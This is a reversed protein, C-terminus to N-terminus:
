SSTPPSRPERLPASYLASDLVSHQTSPQISPQTSPLTSPQTSPLTSPPPRLCLTLPLTLSLPLLSVRTPSVTRPRGLDAKLWPTLCMMAARSSALGWAKAASWRPRQDRGVRVSNALPQPNATPPKNIRSCTCETSRVRDDTSQRSLTPSVTRPRGPDAKPLPTLCM